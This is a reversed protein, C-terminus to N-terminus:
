IAMEAKITPHCKYNIIEFDDFKFGDITVIEEPSRTIKLTPFPYPNRGMQERVQSFHNEYIHTDVMNIVLEKAERGALHCVMRLIFTAGIINFPVGLFVDASRMIAQLSVHKGQKYFVYCFLCPPLAMKNIHPVAWLNIMIRRDPEDSKLKAIVDSIQDVGKNTYDEKCGKYMEEAGAHRFQFSYTVGMDGEEYHKLGQKDLFERTTNGDWIHVNKDKLIKTDTKGSVFFLMEELSGRVFVRKTTLAPLIGNSVDFRLQRSFLSKTKTGTRTDVLSGEKLIEECLDLYNQEEQNNNIYTHLLLNHRHGVYFYEKDILKCKEIDFEGISKDDDFFGGGIELTTTYITHIYRRLEPDEVCQKFIQWGGIVITKRKDTPPELLIKRLSNCIVVNKETPSLENKRTIVINTGDPLPKDMSEFTKRGMILNNGTTIEHFRREYEPSHNRELFSTQFSIFIDYM